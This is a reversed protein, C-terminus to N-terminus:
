SHDARERTMRLGKFQLLLFALTMFHYVSNYNFEWILAFHISKVSQLASGAILIAIAAIYIRYARDARAKPAVKVVIYILNVACYAAYFTYAYKLGHLHIIDLVFSVIVACAFSIGAFRRFGKEGDVEYKITSAYTAVMFCSIPYLSLWLMRSMAAIATFGHLFFGYFSVLDFLLLTAAWLLDGKEHPKRRMLWCVPVLAVIANILDTVATTIEVGGTFM